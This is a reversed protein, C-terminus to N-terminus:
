DSAKTASVASHELRVSECMISLPDFIPLAVYISYTSIIRVFVCVCVCVIYYMYGM